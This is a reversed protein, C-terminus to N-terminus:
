MGNMGERMGEAEGKMNKRKFLSADMKGFRWNFQLRLVQPDRRRSLNQVFFDSNTTADYIRTRFVDSMRRVSLDMGYNPNVYGNSGAATNGGWMGRMGGGGGVPLVTKSQYDGNAQVIWNNKKGIKQTITMKGYFSTQSNNLDQEINESNVTANYVNLNTILDLKPSIKNTGTVELGYRTSSQANVYTNYIV